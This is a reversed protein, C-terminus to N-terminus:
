RLYGLSRLQEIVEPLVPNADKVLINNILVDISVEYYDIDGCFMGVVDEGRLGCLYDGAKVTRNKVDLVDRSLTMLIHASPM